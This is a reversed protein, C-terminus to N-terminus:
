SLIYYTSIDGEMIPGKHMMCVISSNNSFGGLRACVSQARLPLYNKPGELVLTQFM